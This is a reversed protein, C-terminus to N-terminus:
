FQCNSTLNLILMLVFNHFLLFHAYFADCPPAFESGLAERCGAEIRM